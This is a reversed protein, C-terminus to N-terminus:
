IAVPRGDAFPPIDRGRGRVADLVGAEDFADYAQFPLMIPGPVQTTAPARELVTPHIGRRALNRALTLGAMGGGVIVVRMAAERIAGAASPLSRLVAPAGLYSPPMGASFTRSRM